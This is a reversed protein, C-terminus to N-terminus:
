VQSAAADNAADAAGAMLAAAETGNSAARDVGPQEAANSFLGDQQNIASILARATPRAQLPARRLMSGASRHAAGLAMLRNSCCILTWALISSEQSSPDM